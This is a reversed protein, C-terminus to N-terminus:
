VRSRYVQKLANDAVVVRANGFTFYSSTMQNLRDAQCAVIERLGNCWRCHREQRVIVATQSCDIKGEVVKAVILPQNDDLYAM